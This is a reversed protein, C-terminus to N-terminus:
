DHGLVIVESGIAFDGTGGNAVDVRTIQVSTNVWKATEERRIPVNAAGATSAGSSHLTLIKEQTAINYIDMYVYYPTSITAGADIPISARSASSTDAGGNDSFRVAYNTASDNNFTMSPGITGGTATLGVLIKLYKKGTFTSVTITDNSAILTSRGIEQWWIGSGAGGFNINSATITSGAVQTTTISANSISTGPLKSSTISIGYITGSNATTHGAISDVTITSNDITGGTISPSTITKNTLTQTATLSVLTDTVNPLTFTRTTGTTFGSLQFRAQKTLDVDDQITFVGDRVTITNTNDLIKNSLTQITSIDVPQGTVGLFVNRNIKEYATSSSGPQILLYHTSGDITIAATYDGIVKTPTM